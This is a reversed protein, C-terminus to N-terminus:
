IKGIHVVEEFTTVIEQYLKSGLHCLGTLIWAKDHMHMHKRITVSWNQELPLIM